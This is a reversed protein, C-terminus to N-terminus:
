FRTKSLILFLDEETLIIKSYLKAPSKRNFASKIATYGWETCFSINASRGTFADKYNGLIGNYNGNYLRKLLEM